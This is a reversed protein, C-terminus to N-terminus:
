DLNLLCISGSYGEQMVIWERCVAVDRLSSSCSSGSLCVELSRCLRESYSLRHCLWTHTYKDSQM